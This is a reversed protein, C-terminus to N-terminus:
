LEGPDSVDPPTFDTAEVITVNHHFLVGDTLRAVDYGPVQVCVGVPNFSVESTSRPRTGGGGSPLSNGFLDMGGDRAIHLGCLDARTSFFHRMGLQGRGAALANVGAPFESRSPFIGRLGRTDAITGFELLATGNAEVEVGFALNRVVGFGRLELRASDRVHIAGWPNGKAPDAFASHV